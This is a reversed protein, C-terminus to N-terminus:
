LCSHQKATHDEISHVKIAKTTKQTKQQEIESGSDKQERVLPRFAMDIGVSILFLKGPSIITLFQIKAKLKLRSM